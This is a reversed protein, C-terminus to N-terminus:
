TTGFPDDNNHRSWTRPGAGGRGGESIVRLRPDSDMWRRATNESVGVATEIDRVTVPGETLGVYEDYQSRKPDFPLESEGYTVRRTTHDYETPRPAHIVGGTARNSQIAFLRRSHPDGPDAKRLNWEAGPWDGFASSGRARGSAEWGAHHVVIPGCQCGVSEALTNFSDLLQRVGTTSNEDLNAASLIPSVPDVILADIELEMLKRVWRTRLAENRTDLFRASGLLDVYFLLDRPIGLQQIYSSAMAAGLEMDFYAVRMPRNPAYEGLFPEGTTLSRILNLVLTTKGSKKQATLLVSQKPALLNTVAWCEAERPLALADGTLVSPLEVAEMAADSIRRDAEEKVRQNYIRNEVAIDFEGRRHEPVDDPLPTTKRDSEVIWPRTTAFQTARQVKGDIDAISDGQATEYADVYESTVQEGTLVEEPLYMAMRISVCLCRFVTDDRSGPVASCAERVKARHLELMWSHDQAPAVDVAEGEVLKKTTLSELWDVLLRPPLPAVEHDGILKYRGNPKTPHGVRVNPPVQVHQGDAFLDIGQLGDIWKGANIRKPLFDIGKPYEYYLHYGGSPTSVVRTRTEDAGYREVFRQVDGGHQVDVDVVVLNSPKGLVLGIPQDVASCERVTSETIESHQWEVPPTWDDVYVFPVWGRSVYDSVIGERSNLM